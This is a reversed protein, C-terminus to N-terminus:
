RPEDCWRYREGRKITVLRSKLLHFIKKDPFSFDRALSSSMTESLRNGANKEAPTRLPTHAASQHSASTPGRTGCVESQQILFEWVSKKPLGFQGQQFQPTNRCYHAANPKNHYITSRKLIWIIM